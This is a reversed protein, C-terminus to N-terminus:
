IPCMQSTLYELLLLFNSVLGFHKLHKGGLYHWDRKKKLVMRLTETSTVLPFDPHLLFQATFSPLHTLKVKTTLLLLRGKSNNLIAEPQKAVNCIGSEM